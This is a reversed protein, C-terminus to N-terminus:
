VEVRRGVAEDYERVATRLSLTVGIAFDIRRVAEADKREAQWKRANDLKMLIHRAENVVSEQAFAIDPSSM